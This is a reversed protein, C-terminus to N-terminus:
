FVPKYSIGFTKRNWSAKADLIKDWDNQNIYEPTRAHACKREWDQKLLMALEMTAKDRNIFAQKQMTTYAIYCSLAEVEKSSLEPLGEDDLMLGKYLVNVIKHRGDVKILGTEIEKYNIFKGYAYFPSTDGLRKFEEVNSEIALGTWNQTQRNDTKQFDVRGSTVAEIRHVNCPLEVICDEGPESSFKYLNYRKNGIHDWGYMGIEEIDNDNLNLGYLMELQTGISLFPYLKM